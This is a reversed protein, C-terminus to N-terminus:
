AEQAGQLKRWAYNREARPEGYKKAAMAPRARSWGCERCWAPKGDRHQVERHEACRPPGDAPPEMMVALADSTIGWDFDNEM